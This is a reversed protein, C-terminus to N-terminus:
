GLCEIAEIEVQPLAEPTYIVGSLRVPTVKTLADFRLVSKSVLSGYLSIVKRSSLKIFAQHQGALELLFISNDELEGFNMPSSLTMNVSTM